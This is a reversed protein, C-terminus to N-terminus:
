QDYKAAQIQLEQEVAIARSFQCWAQKNGRFGNNDLTTCGGCLQNNMVLDVHEHDLQTLPISWTKSRRNATIVLILDTDTKTATWNRKM